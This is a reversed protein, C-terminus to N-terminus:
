YAFCRCSKGLCPKGCFGTDDGAGGAVCDRGEGSLATRIQDEDPRVVTSGDTAKQKAAHRLSNQTRRVARHFDYAALATRV